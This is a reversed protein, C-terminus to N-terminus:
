REVSNGGIWAIGLVACGKERLKRCAEEMHEGSTAVDDVVLVPGEPVRSVQMRPRKANKRPHSGGKGAPLRLADIVPLSLKRALALAIHRSLCNDLGSNGCPVPVIGRFAQGGILATIEDLMNDAIGEALLPAASDKMAKLAAIQHDRITTRWARLTVFSVGKRSRLARREILTELLFSATTSAPNPRSSERRPIAKEFADAAEINGTIDVVSVVVLPDPRDVVRVPSGM